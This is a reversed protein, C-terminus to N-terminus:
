RCTRYFSLRNDIKANLYQVMLPHLHKAQIGYDDANTALTNYSNGLSVADGEKVALSGSIAEITISKEDVGQNFDLNSSRFLFLEQASDFAAKDGHLVYATGRGLNAAGVGASIAMYSGSSVQQASHSAWLNSADSEPHANQATLGAAGYLTLGGGFDYATDFAGGSAFALGAATNDAGFYYGESGGVTGFHYLKFAPQPYSIGGDASAAVFQADSGSVADGGWDGPRAYELNDGNVQALWM